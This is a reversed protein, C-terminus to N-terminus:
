TTDEHTPQSRVGVAALVKKLKPFRHRCLTISECRRAGLSEKFRELDALNLSTGLCYDKVGQEILFRIIEAHLLNNAKLTRYAHDIGGYLYGATRRYFSFIAGAIVHGEHTITAIRAPSGPMEMLRRLRILEHPKSATRRNKWRAFSLLHVQYFAELMEMGGFTVTLGKREAVRVNYRKVDHRSFWEDYTAPLDIRHYVARELPLFGLAKWRDKDEDYYEGPVDLNIVCRRPLQAVVAWAQDTMRGIGLLSNVAVGTFVDSKAVGLHSTSSKAMPILMDDALLVFTNGWSRIQTAFFEPGGLASPTIATRDAALQWQAVQSIDFKVLEM